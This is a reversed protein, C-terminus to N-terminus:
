LSAESSVTSAAGAFAPLGGSGAQDSVMSFSVVLPVRVEDDMDGASPRRPSGQQSLCRSGARNAGSVGPEGNVGTRGRMRNGQPTSSCAPPLQMSNTKKYRRGDRRHVQIRSRASEPRAYRAMRVILNVGRQKVIGGHYPRSSISAAIAMGLIWQSSITRPHRRHLGFVAQDVDFRWPLPM